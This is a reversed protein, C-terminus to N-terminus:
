ANKNVLAEKIPLVLKDIDGAGATIFLNLPATAAYAVLGEKTLITCNPNAMKEIIMQLSVGDIPEERAPYIDLLIIEDAKDLSQAFGAAFDRTRSFL